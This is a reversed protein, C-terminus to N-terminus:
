GNERNRSTIAKTWLCYAGLALLFTPWSAYLLFALLPLGLGYVLFDGWTLGTTITDGDEM